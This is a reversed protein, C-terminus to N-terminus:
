FPLPFHKGHERLWEADDRASRKSQNYNNWYRDFPTLSQTSVKPGYGNTGYSSSDGSVAFSAAPSLVLAAAFGVLAFTKLM